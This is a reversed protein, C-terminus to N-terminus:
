KSPVAARSAPSRNSASPRSRAIREVLRSGGAFHALLTVPEFDGTGCGSGQRFGQGCLNSACSIREDGPSEELIRSPHSLWQIGRECRCPRRPSARVADEIEDVVVGPGYPHGGNPMAAVRVPASRQQPPRPSTTSTWSRGHGIRSRSRGSARSAATRGHARTGRPNRNSRRNSGHRRGRSYLNLASNVTTELVAADPEVGPDGTAPHAPLVPPESSLPQADTLRRRVRVIRTTPNAGM